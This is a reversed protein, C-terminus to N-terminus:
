RAPRVSFASVDAMNVWSHSGTTSWSDVFSRVEANKVQVRLEEAFTKVLGETIDEEVEHNLTIVGGSRFALVIELRRGRDRTMGFAPRQAGFGATGQHESRPQEPNM